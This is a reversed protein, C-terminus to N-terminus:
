ERIALVKEIIPIAEAYRGKQYLKAAQQNLAEIKEGGASERLEEKRQAIDIKARALKEKAEISTM